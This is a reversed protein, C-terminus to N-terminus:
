ANWVAGDIESGDKRWSIMGDLGDIIAKNREIDKATLKGYIKQSVITGMAIHSKENGDFREHRDKYFVFLGLAGILLLVTLAISIIKKKNM